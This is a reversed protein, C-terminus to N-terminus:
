LTYIWKKKLKMLPIKVMCCSSSKPIELCKSIKNAIEDDTLDNVFDIAQNGENDRTRWDAGDLLLIKIINLNPNKESNIVALHLPTRGLNDRSEIDIEKSALLFYAANESGMFAAWHLATDGKVDKGMLPLNVKNLLYYIM